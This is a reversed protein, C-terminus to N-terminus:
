IEGLCKSAPFNNITSLMGFSILFGVARPSLDNVWTHSNTFVNALVIDLADGSTHYAWHQTQSALWDSRSYHRIDKDKHKHTQKQYAHSDAQFAKM